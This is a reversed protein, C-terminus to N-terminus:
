ERPHRPYEGRAGAGHRQRDREQRKGARGPGLAAAREIGSGVIGRSRAGVHLHATGAGLVRALDRPPREEVDIGLGPFVDEDSRAVAAVAAVDQDEVGLVEPLGAVLRNRALRVELARRPARLGSPMECPGTAPRDLVAALLQGPRVARVS